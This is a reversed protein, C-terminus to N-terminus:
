SAAMVFLTVRRLLMTPSWLEPSSSTGEYLVGIRMGRLRIWEAVETLADKGETISNPRQAFVMEIQWHPSVIATLRKCVRDIVHSFVSSTLLCIHIARRRHLRRGFLCWLPKAYLVGRIVVPDSSHCAEVLFSDRGCALLVRSGLYRVLLISDSGQIKRPLWKCRGLSVSLQVLLRSARRSPGRPSKPPYRNLAGERDRRAKEETM